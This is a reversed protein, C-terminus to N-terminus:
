VNTGHQEKWVGLQKLGWMMTMLLASGDVMAVDIVQGKGSRQAELVGCVIGFAMFMGGGGFDGVLNIPPTPKSDARGFHALAGALAIYNIDHGAAKALPGEQGWGTMRGYVLKPNRALCIDPGLGLREAVGPRFPETMGDAKEILRLVVEVGEKKQLDVSVSRRSRNHVAYKPDALRDMVHAKTRDVRIVDAGMDGLMMSCMPGPGIGALEVITLGSLPGAMTKRRRFACKGEVSSTLRFATATM